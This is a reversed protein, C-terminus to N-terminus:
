SKNIYSLVKLISFLTAFCKTFLEAAWISFNLLSGCESFTVEATWLIGAEQIQNLTRRASQSTPM